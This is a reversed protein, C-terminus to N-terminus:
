KTLLYKRTKETEFISGFTSHGDDKRKSPMDSGGSPVESTMIKPHFSGHFQTELAIDASPIKCTTVLIIIVTLLLV